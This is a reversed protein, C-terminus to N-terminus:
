AGSTRGGPMLWDLADDATSFFRLRLGRNVCVTEFFQNAANNEYRDVIALKHCPGRLLKAVFSAHEFDTSIDTEIVLDRDDVLARDVELRSCSQALQRWRDRSSAHDWTGECHMLLYGERQVIEYRFKTM